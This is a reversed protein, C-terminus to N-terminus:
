QVLDYLKVEAKAGKLGRTHRVIVKHADSNRYAEITAESEWESYSIFEPADRCRLLKESLCGKQQIMLSACQTKWIRVANATESPDVKSHILRIGGALLLGPLGAGAVPGPVSPIAGPIFLDSLDTAQCSGGLCQGVGFLREM